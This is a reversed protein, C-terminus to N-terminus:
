RDKEARQVAPVFAYGPAATAIAFPTAVGVAATSWAFYLSEGITTYPILDGRYGYRFSSLWDHPGAYSEVLHDGFSGAAYKWGFIEGGEGQNGGLFSPKIKKWSDYAYKLRGGGIKRRIAGDFETGVSEGACNLNGPPTCSQVIMAQRMEYAGWRLASFGAALRLGDSFSGGNIESAIGGAAGEAVVRGVGWSNGYYSGIGGLLGGSVLGAVLGRSGGSIAGAVAGSVAGAIAGTTWAGAAASAAASAYLSATGATAGQVSM